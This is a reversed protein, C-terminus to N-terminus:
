LFEGHLLVKIQYQFYFNKLVKVIICLKLIKFRPSYVNFAM